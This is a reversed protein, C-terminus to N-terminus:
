AEDVDRDQRVEIAIGVRVVFERAVHMRMGRVEGDM